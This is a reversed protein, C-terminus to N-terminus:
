HLQIAHVCINCDELVFCTKSKGVVKSIQVWNIKRPYYLKRDTIYPATTRYVNVSTEDIKRTSPPLVNVRFPPIKIGFRVVRIESGPIYGEEYDSCRSGLIRRQTFHTIDHIYTISSVLGVADTAYRSFKHRCSNMRMDIQAYLLMRNHIILTNRGFCATVATNQGQIRSFGTRIQASSHHKYGEKSSGSSNRSSIM